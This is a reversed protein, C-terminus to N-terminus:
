AEKLDQLSAVFENFQENTLVMDWAFKDRKKLNRNSYYLLLYTPIKEGRYYYKHISIFGCGCVCEILIENEKEIQQLLKNLKELEICRNDSMGKTQEFDFYSEEDCYTKIKNCIIQTPELDHNPLQEIMRNLKEIEAKLEKITEDASALAYRLHYNDMKIKLARFIRKCM